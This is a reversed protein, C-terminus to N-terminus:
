KRAEERERYGDEYKQRRKVDAVTLMRSYWLQKGEPSIDGHEWVKNPWNM